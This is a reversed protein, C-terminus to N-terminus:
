DSLSREVFDNFNKKKKTLIKEILDFDMEAEQNFNYDYSLLNKIKFEEALNILRNNMNGLSTDRPIAVIRKKFIISFIVAHFSDTLVKECHEILWIFESPSIAFEEDSGHKVYACDNDLFILDCRNEECFAKIKKIVDDEFKGLLYCLMYKKDRIMKPKQSIKEWEMKDLMLTPDILVPVNIHILEKVIEAGAKERVSIADFDNLYKKYIGRKDRDEINDVGFSASIAVKKKGKAFQLFSTGTTIGFNPNWIQDSGAVFCDYTGLKRFVNNDAVREREFKIYKRNFKNFSIKRKDRYTYKVHFTKKVFLKIRRLLESGKYLRKLTKVDNGKDELICQMAYNQLRNGYNEGETITYIGIKM